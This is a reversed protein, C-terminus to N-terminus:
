RRKQRLYIAVITLVITILVIIIPFPLIVMFADYAGSSKHNKFSTHYFKEYNKEYGEDYGKEYLIPCTKGRDEHQHASYGHHYHYPQSGAHGGKSDTRGSHASAFSIMLLLLLSSVIVKRHWM